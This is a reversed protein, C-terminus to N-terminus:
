HPNLRDPVDEPWCIATEFASERVCHWNTQGVVGIPLRSGIATLRSLSVYMSHM